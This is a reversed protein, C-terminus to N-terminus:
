NINNFLKCYKMLKSKKEKLTKTVCERYTTSLEKCPEGNETEWNGNLSQESYWKNFFNDDEHKLPNCEKNISGM